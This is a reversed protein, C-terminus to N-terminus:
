DIEVNENEEISMECDPEEDKDEKENCSADSERKSFNIPTTLHKNAFHNLHIKHDSSTSPPPISTPIKSPYFYSFPVTPLPMGYAM